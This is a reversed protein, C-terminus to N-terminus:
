PSSRYHLWESKSFTRPHALFEQYANRVTAPSNQDITFRHKGPAWYLWGKYRPYQRLDEHWTNIISVKPAPALEGTIIPMDPNLQMLGEIIDRHLKPIRHEDYRMEFSLIDVYEDGPYFTRLKEVDSPSQAINWCWLVNNAKHYAFIDHVEQWLRVFKEPTNGNGFKGGAGWWFWGGTFEHFPRFVVPTKAERMEVALLTYWRIYRDRGPGDELVLDIGATPNTKAYVSGGAFNAQHSRYWAMGGSEHLEIGLKLIRARHDAHDAVKDAFGTQNNIEYEWMVPLHGKGYRQEWWRQGMPYWLRGNTCCSYGIMLGDLDELKQYMHQTEATAQAHTRSPNPHIRPPEALDVYERYIDRSGQEFEPITTEYVSDQAFTFCAHLSLFLIAFCLKNM